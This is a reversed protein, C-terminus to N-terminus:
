RRRCVWVVFGKKQYLREGGLGLLSKSKFQMFRGGRDAAYLSVCYGGDADNFRRKEACLFCNGLNGGSNCGVTLGFYDSVNGAM